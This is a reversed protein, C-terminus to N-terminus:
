DLWWNRCQTRLLAARRQSFQWSLQQDRSTAAAAAAAAVAEASQEELWDQPGMHATAAEILAGARPLFPYSAVVMRALQRHTLTNFLLLHLALSSRNLLGMLENVLTIPDDDQASDGEAPQVAAAIAALAAAKGGAGAAGGKVAAAAAQVDAGAFRRCGPATFSLNDAVQGALAAATHAHAENGAPSAPVADSNSCGTNSVEFAASFAGWTTVDAGAAGAAESADMRSGTSAAAAGAAATSVPQQMAMNWAHSNGHSVEKAAALLQVSCGNPSNMLQAVALQAQQQMKQNHLFNKYGAALQQLQVHTLQMRAAVRQWHQPPPAELQQTIQNTAACAGLAAGVTELYICGLVGRTIFTDVAQLMCALVSPLLCVHLINTALAAFRATIHEALRACCAAALWGM